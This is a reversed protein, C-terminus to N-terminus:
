DNIWCSIRDVCFINM